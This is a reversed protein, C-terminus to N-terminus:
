QSLTRQRLYRLGVVVAAGTIAIGTFAAITNSRFYEEWTQWDTSAKVPSWVYRTHLLVNVGQAIPYLLFLTAPMVAEWVREGLQKRSAMAIVGVLLLAIAFCIGTVFTQGIFYWLVADGMRSSTWFYPYVAQSVAIFFAYIGVASWGILTVRRQDTV